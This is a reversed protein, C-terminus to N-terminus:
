TTATSLSVPATVGTATQVGSALMSTTTSTPKAVGFVNSGSASISTSMGSSIVPTASAVTTSVTSANTTAVGAFRHKFLVYRDYSIKGFIVYIKRVNAHFFILLM